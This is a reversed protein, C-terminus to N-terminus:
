CSDDCQETLISHEQESHIQEVQIKEAMGHGLALSGDRVRILIRGHERGQIVCVKTGPILGLSYLRSKM